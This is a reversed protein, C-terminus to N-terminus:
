ETAMTQLEADDDEAATQGLAIQLNSFTFQDMGGGTYGDLKGLYAQEADSASWGNAEADEYVQMYNMALMTGAGWTQSQPDWKTLFLANNTTGAVTSVYVASINGAGDAGITVEARGTSSPTVEEGDAG